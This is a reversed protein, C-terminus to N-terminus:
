DSKLNFKKSSKKIAHAYKKTYRAHEMQESIIVKCILLRM